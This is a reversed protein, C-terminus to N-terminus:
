FDAVVVAIEARPCRQVTIGTCRTVHSEITFAIEACNELVGSQTKQRVSQEDTRPIEYLANNSSPSLIQSM